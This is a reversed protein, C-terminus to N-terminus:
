GSTKKQPPFINTLITPTPNNGKLFHNVEDRHPCEKMYHDGECILCPYKPKRKLSDNTSLNQNNEPKSGNHNQKGKGKKKNGVQPRGSDSSQITNV